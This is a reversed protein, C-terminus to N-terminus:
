FNIQAGVLAQTTSPYYDLTNNVGPYLTNVPV